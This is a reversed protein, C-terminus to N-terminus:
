SSQNKLITIQKEIHKLVDNSIENKQLTGSVIACAVIFDADGNMYKSWLERSTGNHFKHIFDNLEFCNIKKDHWENFNNYLSELEKNLEREWALAALERIKKRIAKPYENM